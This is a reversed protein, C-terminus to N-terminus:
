LVHLYSIEYILGGFFAVPIRTVQVHPSWDSTAGVSLCRFLMLADGDGALNANLADVIM